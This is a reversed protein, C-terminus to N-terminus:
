ESKKLFELLANRIMKRGKEPIQRNRTRNYNRKYRERRGNGKDGNCRCRDGMGEERGVVGVGWGTEEGCEECYM